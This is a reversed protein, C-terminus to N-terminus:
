VAEPLPSWLSRLHEWRPKLFEIVTPEDNRCVEVTSYCYRGKRQGMWFLKLKGNRYNPDGDYTPEDDESQEIWDWRFLLNYDMDSDSWEVLFDAFSKYYSEVSESAYYNGENCYYSHDM